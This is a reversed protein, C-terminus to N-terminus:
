PVKVPHEARYDSLLAIVKDIIAQSVLKAGIRQRAAIASAFFAARFAPTTKVVKVGQHQLAGSLLTDETKRALDDFGVSLRATAARVSQREEPALSDFIRSAMVVCGYVHSEHMDLLYPARVTWQFAVAATPVSWFADIKGATFLNNADALDAPVTPLGMEQNIRLAADDASWRWTRLRRLEDLSQVPKQSFLMDDGISSGGLYTFGADRAEKEFLPQLKNMVYTAEDRTLFMAPFRGVQMSPMLRNCVMGGSGAGDLQGKKLRETIESEDGAVANMYWKIRVRGNTRQEIDRAFAKCENAWGTGEPAVTAMRIVVPDAWAVAGVLMLMALLRM